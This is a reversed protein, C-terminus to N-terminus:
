RRKGHRAVTNNNVSRVCEGYIKGRLQLSAETSTLVLALERFKKWACRLRTKSADQAGHGAAIM